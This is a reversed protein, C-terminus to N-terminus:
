LGPGSGQKLRYRYRLIRLLSENNPNTSNPYHFNVFQWRSDKFTVEAIVHPGKEEEPHSRSWVGYVRAWYHGTQRTVTRVVYREAPDQSNLIPDFDLVPDGAAKGEADSEVLARTLEPSFPNGKYKLAAHWPAKGDSARFGKFVRAVYWNYFGQTFQLCSGEGGKPSQQAWLWPTNLLLVCLVVAIKRNWDAMHCDGEPDRIVAICLM